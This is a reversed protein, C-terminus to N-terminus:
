PARWTNKWASQCCYNSKKLATMFFAQSFHGKKQWQRSSSNISSFKAKTAIFLFKKRGIESHMPHWLPQIIMSLNDKEHGKNEHIDENTQQFISFFPGLALPYKFWLGNSTTCNTPKHELLRLRWINVVSNGGTLALYYMRMYMGDNCYQPTVITGLAM